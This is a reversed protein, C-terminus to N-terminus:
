DLFIRDLCRDFHVEMLSRTDNIIDETYPTIPDQLASVITALQVPTLICVVKKDCHKVLYKQTNSIDSKAKYKKM